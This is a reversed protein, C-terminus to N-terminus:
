GKNGCSGSSLCMVVSCMGRGEGGWGVCVSMSVRQKWMLWFKFVYYEVEWVACEGEWVREGCESVRQKWFKFVDNFRGCQVNGRGERGCVSVRNGCSGSSLCMM